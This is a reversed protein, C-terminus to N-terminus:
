KIMKPLSGTIEEKGGIRVLCYAKANCSPMLHVCAIVTLYVFLVFLDRHNFWPFNEFTKLSTHKSLVTKPLDNLQTRAKIHLRVRNSTSQVAEWIFSDLKSWIVTSVPNKFCYIASLYQLKRCYGKCFRATWLKM